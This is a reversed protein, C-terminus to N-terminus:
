KLNNNGYSQSIAFFFPSKSHAVNLSDLNKLYDLGQPKVKELLNDIQILDNQLQENM